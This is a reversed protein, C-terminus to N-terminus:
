SCKIALYICNLYKHVNRNCHTHTHTHTQKHPYFDYM